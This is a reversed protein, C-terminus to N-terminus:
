NNNNNNEIGGEVAVEIDTIERNSLHLVNGANRVPWWIDVGM